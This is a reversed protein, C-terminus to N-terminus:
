EGAGSKQLEPWLWGRVVDVVARLREDSIRERYQGAMSTDVHGMVSSVADPDKAEGGITQFTHRIAYFNLRNRGNIKLTKLLRGFRKALADLAMVKDPDKGSPVVRVWRRGFCTLFVCGDDEADAAEPRVAIATRLADVTESWLPVRRRVGTKPRPFDVIGNELDLASLPLGAIDSQGFGTNCALLVMARMGPDAKVTKEKGDVMVPKGALADLITRLEHSEFMRPGADNRAIRLTKASPRNFGDGYDVPRDILRHKSAFRFVVRCRNIENKLAVVGYRKALKARCDAFEAPRIDDVRRDGGFHEVIRKCTAFYDGFSRLTLEGAEMKLRKANLFEDALNAVTLYEGAAEPPAERGKIIFPWEREYKALAAQWDALKGFYHSKGRHKKCWRGSPHATLPFGDYPKPSKKARSSKTSKAM